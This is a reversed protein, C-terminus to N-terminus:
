SLEKNKKNNKATEKKDGLLGLVRSQQSIRLIQYFQFSSYREAELTLMGRSTDQSDAEQIAQLVWDRERRYTKM